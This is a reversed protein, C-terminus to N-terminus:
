PVNSRRLQWCMADTPRLKKKKKQMNNVKGVTDRLSKGSEVINEREDM